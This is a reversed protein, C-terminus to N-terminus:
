LKIGDYARDVALTCGISSLTLRGGVRAELRTWEEREGRRLVEILPEHQSALVYEKLSAIQKYHEFKLGRDYSETSDSLVEVILTPNTATNKDAPDVELKGCIVTVDPYTWLGTPVVRIRLNSDYPRCPRSELQNRLESGIALCRASHAPSGGAMAFIDGELFELKTDSGGSLTLYQQLTYRHLPQRM